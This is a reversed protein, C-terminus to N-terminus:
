GSEAERVIGPDVSAASETGTLIMVRELEDRIQRWYLEVGHSGGGVAAIAVPRGIMCLDAGLALAKLIDEGSRIGGDLVIRAAGRFERAIEPLVEAGGPMFDMVRGGHNGIVLAKAGARVAKEADRVTMIGKVIFPLECESIIEQLEEFTKPSVAQGKSKMTVFAAGDVDMGVAPCGTAEAARIRKMVEAKPRPKFIPIAKGGAFSAADLGIRYKEPSAGDGVCSV